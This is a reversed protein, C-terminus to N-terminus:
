PQVGFWDRRLEEVVQEPTQGTERARKQVNASLQPQRLELRHGEYHSILILEDDIWQLDEIEIPYIYGDTM